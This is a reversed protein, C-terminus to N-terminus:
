LIEGMGKITRQKVKGNRKYLLKGYKPTGNFSNIDYTKILYIDDMIADLNEKEKTTTGDSLHYVKLLALGSKIQREYEGLEAFAINVGSRERHFKQYGDFLHRMHSKSGWITLYYIYEVGKTAIANDKDQTLDKNVVSMFRMFSSFEINPDDSVILVACNVKKISM